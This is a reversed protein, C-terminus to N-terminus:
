AAQELTTPIGEIYLEVTGTRLGAVFDEAGDKPVALRITVSRYRDKIGAQTFDCLCADGILEQGEFLISGDTYMARCNIHTSHNSPAM